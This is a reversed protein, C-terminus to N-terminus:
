NAMRYYALRDGPALRRSRIVPEPYGAIYERLFRPIEANAASAYKVYDVDAYWQIGDAYSESFDQYVRVEAIEDIAPVLEDYIFIDRRLPHGTLKDTFSQADIMSYYSTEPIPSEIVWPNKPDGYANFQNRIFFRPDRPKLSDSDTVQIVVDLNDPAGMGMVPNITELVHHKFGFSLAEPRVFRNRKNCFGDMADGDLWWRLTIGINPDTRSIPTLNVRGCYGPWKLPPERMAMIM